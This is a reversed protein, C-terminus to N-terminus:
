VRFRREGLHDDDRPSLVSHPDRREMGETAIQRSRDIGDRVLREALDADRSAIARALALHRERMEQGTDRATLGLHFVRLSEDFIHSILQVLHRNGSARAITLHLNRNKIVFKSYSQPDNYNYTFDAAQMIERLQEETGRLAALRTAAPELISRTEYIERVDDPTLTTVIYGLRPIPTVFGEQALQLLAERVPTMGVHYREALDPQAIQEGPEIACTVIDNKILQYIRESLLEKKRM